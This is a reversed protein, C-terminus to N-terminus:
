KSQMVIRLAFCSATHVVDWLHSKYSLLNTACDDSKLCCLQRIMFGLKLFQFQREFFPNFSFGQTFAIGSSFVKEDTDKLFIALFLQSLQCFHCVSTVIVNFLFVKLTHLMSRSPSDRNGVAPAAIPFVRGKLAHITIKKEKWYSHSQKFRGWSCVTDDKATCVWRLSCVTVM